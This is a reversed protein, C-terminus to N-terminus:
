IVTQNIVSKYCFYEQLSYFSHLYLFQRLQVEFSKIDSSIDKIYQPLNNCVKTGLCNIGKQFKRLNVLPHHLSKQQRTNIKHIESNVIFKNKNKIMFLMLSLIYQSAQPLIELERFLHKCSDRRRRGLMIRIINKQM